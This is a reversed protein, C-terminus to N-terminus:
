IKTKNIALKVPQASVTKELEKLLIYKTNLKKLDEAVLSVNKENLSITQLYSSLLQNTSHIKGIKKLDREHEKFKWSYSTTELDKLLNLCTHLAYYVNNQATKDSKQFTSFSFLDQHKKCINETFFDSPLMSLLTSCEKSKIKTLTKEIFDYNQKVTSPFHKFLGADVDLAKECLKLNNQFREPLFQLLKYQSKHTIDEILSDNNATFKEPINKYLIFTEKPEIYAIHFSSFVDYIMKDTIFKHPVFAFNLFKQRIAFDCIEQTLEKEPIYKLYRSIHTKYLYDRVEQTNMEPPALLLIDPNQEIASYLFYENKLINTPIFKYDRSKREKSFYYTLFVPNNLLPSKEKFLTSLNDTKELLSSILRNNTSM